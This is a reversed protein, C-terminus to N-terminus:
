SPLPLYGFTVLFVKKSFYFRWISHCFVLGFELAVPAWTVDHVSTVWTHGLECAVASM